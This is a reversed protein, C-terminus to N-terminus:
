MSSEDRVVHAQYRRADAEALNSEVAQHRGFVFLRRQHSM